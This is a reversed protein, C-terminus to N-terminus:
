FKSLTQSFFCTNDIFINGIMYFRVETSIWLKEKQKIKDSYELQEFCFSENINKKTKEKIRFTNQKDFKIKKNTADEKNIVFESDDLDAIIKSLKRSLYESNIGETTNKLDQCKQIILDLKIINLSVSTSLSQEVSINESDSSFELSLNNNNYNMNIADDVLKSIFEAIIIMTKTNQCFYHIHPCLYSNSLYFQCQCEYMHVCVKCHNCKLLCPCEVM